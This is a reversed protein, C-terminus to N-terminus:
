FTQGNEPHKYKDPTKGDLDIESYTGTQKYQLNTAEEPTSAIFGATVKGFADVEAGLNGQAHMQSTSKSGARHTVNEGEKTGNKILNSDSNNFKDLIGM